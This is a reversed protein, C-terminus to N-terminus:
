PAASQAIAKARALTRERSLHSSALPLQSRRWRACSRHFGERYNELKYKAATVTVQATHERDFVVRIFYAEVASPLEVQWIWLHWCSGVGQRGSAQPRPLGLKM